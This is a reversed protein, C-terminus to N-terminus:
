EDHVYTSTGETDFATHVVLDVRCKYPSKSTFMVICCTVSKQYSLAGKGESLRQPGKPGKSQQCLLQWVTYSEPAIVLMVLALVFMRGCKKCSPDHTKCLRVSLQVNSYRGGIKLPPPPSGIDDSEDSFCKFDLPPSLSVSLESM